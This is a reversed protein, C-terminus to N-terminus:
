PSEGSDVSDGSEGSESEGPIVPNEDEKEGDNSEIQEASEEKKKKPANRQKRVKKLESIVAASELPMAWRGVLRGSRYRVARIVGANHRDRWLKEAAEADDGIYLTEWENEGTLGAIIHKPEHM